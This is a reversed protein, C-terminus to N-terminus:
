DKFYDIVTQVIVAMGDKLVEDDVDFKDQHHKMVERKSPAMGLYFFNAPVAEAFYSFDEGGM